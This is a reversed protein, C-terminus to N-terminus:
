AVNNFLVSVPNVQKEAKQLLEKIASVDKLVTLLVLHKSKKGSLNQITQKAGEESLHYHIVVNMGLQGLMVAVARGIRVGAVRLLPIKSYLNM